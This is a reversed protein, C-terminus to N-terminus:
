RSTYSLRLMELAEDQPIELATAARLLFASESPNVMNDARMVRIAVGLAARRLRPDNLRERIQVLRHERGEAELSRGIHTLMAEITAEPLQGRSATILHEKFVQREEVVVIGDAYAALFMLEVVAELKPIELDGLSLATVESDM